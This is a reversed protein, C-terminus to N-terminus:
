QISRLEKGKTDLETEIQQLENTKEKYRKRRTNSKTILHAMLTGAKGEAEEALQDADKRLSTSVQVLIRKKKKWTRSTMKWLKTSRHRTMLSKCKRRSILTCETDQNNCQRLVGHLFIDLSTETPRYSLFSENEVSLFDNFQQIIVDGASVGGSLQQAKLFRQVLKTMSSKCWDPYSMMMSPDLCAVQREVPYKLPSKDQVKQIITCMVKVCDKSFELVTLEGIKKQKQLEKMLETLDKALFPFFTLFTLYGHVADMYM